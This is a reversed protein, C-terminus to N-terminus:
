DIGFEKYFKERAKEDTVAKQIDDNRNEKLLFDILKALNAEGKAIGRAEGKAEITAAYTLMDSVEKKIDRTVPIGYSNLLRLKDETGIDSNVIIGLVDLAKSGTGVAYDKGVNILIASMLDYRRVDDSKGFLMEKKLSYKEISNKRKDATGLCIWISYVKKINGYKKKDDSRVTFETDLQSSLMRSCYFIGRLPISYGPNDDNQAEIDILIKSLEPKEYGPLKLYTRIDYRIMGEGPQYDEQTSGTMVEMPFVSEEEIAVEGEICQEIETITMGHCEEVTESLIVALIPKCALVKKVQRDLRTNEVSISHLVTGTATMHKM